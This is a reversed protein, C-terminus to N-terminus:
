QLATIPFLRKGSFFKTFLVKFITGIRSTIMVDRFLPPYLPPCNPALAGGFMQSAENFPAM